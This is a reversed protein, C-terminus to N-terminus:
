ADGAGPAGVRRRVALAAFTLITVGMAVATGVLALWAFGALAFLMFGLAYADHKVLPQLRGILRGGPLAHLEASDRTPELALLSTAGIQLLKAYLFGVAVLVLAVALVGTAVLAPPGGARATGATVGALYLVTTADDCITDLWEGRRTGLHKLRALEGDVGDLVSAAQYLVGGAAFGAPSGHASCAAAAVGCGLAVATMADPSVPLPALLRTLRLSLPRNLHRSVWGDTPKVLGAYLADELRARDADSDLRAVWLAPPLPVPALTGHGPPRWRLGVATGAADVCEGPRGLVLAWLAPHPARGADLELRARAPEPADWSVAPLRPDSAPLRVGLEALSGRGPGGALHVQRVGAAAAAVLLRQLVPVGALPSRWWDPALGAPADLQFLALTV